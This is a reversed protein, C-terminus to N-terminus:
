KVEMLDPRYKYIYAVVGATVVAAVPGATTLHAFLMAPVAVEIGYPCYGKAIYPQVGFEIAAALAAVNIAIYAAVGAAIARARVDDSNFFKLLARYMLYGAFPLVFAMNFANAGFATIGGDGFFFAQIMLAVSVGIVAAWPGLIIAILTGGVMHATTGDPVPWNFMMVVFSFSSLMALMPIARSSLREKAWKAAYWWVPLMIVFMVVCTIPGLYGDPIHM